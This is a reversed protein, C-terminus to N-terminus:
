IKSHTPSVWTMFITHVTWLVSVQNQGCLLDFNVSSQGNVWNENLACGLNQLGPKNWVKILFFIYIYLYTDYHPRLWNHKCRYAAIAKMLHCTNSISKNKACYSQRGSNLQLDTIIRQWNQETPEYSTDRRNKLHSLYVSSKNTCSDNTQLWCIWISM